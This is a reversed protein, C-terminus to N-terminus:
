LTNKLKDYDLKKMPLFVKTIKDILEESADFMADDLFDPVIQWSLGYKDKLWGCQEAERDNSLLNWYYDIEEQNKCRVMFSIAENFSYDVSNANDMATLRMSDLAFEAYNIKAEPASAENENYRNIYITESNPFSNTYFSIAEEAKGNVSSSFLLNPSIKVKDTDSNHFIQWSLGYKDQLWGYRESFFYKDLPMLEKGGQILAEWISNVQEINPTKVMMSISPNFRFYPGGSIAQFEKGCLYFDILEADGSPTDRLIISKNIKSDPFISTYLEAAERAEKDYWLHILLKDM